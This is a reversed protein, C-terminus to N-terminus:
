KCSPAVIRIRCTASFFDRFNLFSNDLLDLPQSFLNFSQWLLVIAEEVFEEKGAVSRRLAGAAAPGMKGVREGRCSFSAIIAAAKFVL